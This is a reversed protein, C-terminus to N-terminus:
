YGWVRVLALSLITFYSVIEEDVCMCNSASVGEGVFSLLQPVEKIHHHPHQFLQQNFQEMYEM